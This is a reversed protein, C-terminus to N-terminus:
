RPPFSPPLDAPATGWSGPQAALTISLRGGAAVFAEPLWSHTAPTGDLAVRDVYLAPAGTAELHLEVGNSRRITARPFLPAGILLDARGPYQPYLGLASWIFWASMAGLDDQGPIGDPRNGWLTELTHRLIEQSRAPLGAFYYLWPAGISPENDMEAHTGGAHTLAWGGDPNRFFADLRALARDRGGLAEFLGHPDHPVMWTYQASSGEAFGDDGAPDFPTRWSGDSNRDQIYGGDPTASPNFVNHWSGARALFSAATARDGLRAALQAVAFDASADELTEGAGGWANGDAPVYGHALYFDLSPREGAAMVQWGRRSRDAETVTTAAHVMSALAQPADFDTAGFAHLSAVAIHGPDGTMVHTGGAAHTWRDWVGGNQEAQLLLSRAIDSAIAPELLAVLQLQGRYVDWGSFNAYQAHGAAAQHVKQDMGVYRGDVDSFLNPHLLSHYLATYFTVQQDRSGGDIAIRGLARNWADHAARRVSDFTTGDPIESELNARAGAASVFSIGVRMTVPAGDSAFTVYAGSGIGAPPFGKDGYGSGGEATTSGAPGLVGDRWTGTGTIPRDLVAHFYLTYYSRRTEADLYGCFNGSTVSGSITGAAVDIATQARESGVESSSTRILLTAPKGSPYRFRGIGARASATLEVEVGSDLAVRYYGAEAQERDHSFASAYIADKTDASPSSAVTDPFPFFPIDGYAGACGTGSMHTLSFGRIRPTDYGYGGPRSTRTADGKTTEPSWQVMGFPTVAGPWTEGGKTGIMPNVLGAVEPPPAEPPAPNRPREGSGACATAAILPLARLWITPRPMMPM